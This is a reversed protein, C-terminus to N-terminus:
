MLKHSKSPSFKYFTSRNIGLFECIQIVSYWKSGTWGSTDIEKEGHMACFAYKAGTDARFNMDSPM